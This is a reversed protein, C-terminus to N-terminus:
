CVINFGYIKQQNDQSCYTRSYRLPDLGARASTDKDEMPPLNDSVLETVDLELISILLPFSARHSFM